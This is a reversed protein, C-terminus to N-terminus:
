FPADEPICALVDEITLCTGILQGDPTEVECDDGETLGDCADIAEQPPAPPEDGESVGGSDSAADDDDELTAEGDGGSADDDDGCGINFGLVLALCAMTLAVLIVFKKM